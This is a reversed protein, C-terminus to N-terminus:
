LELNNNRGRVRPLLEKTRGKFSSKLARGKNLFKRRVEATKRSEQAKRHVEGNGKERVPGPLKCNGGLLGRRGGYVGTGKTHISNSGGGKKCITPTGWEINVCPEPKEAWPTGRLIKRGREGLAIGAGARTRETSTRQIELVKLSPPGEGKTEQGRRKRGQSAVSLPTQNGKASDGPQTVTGNGQLTIENSSSTGGLHRRGEAYSRGLPHREDKEWRSDGQSRRV